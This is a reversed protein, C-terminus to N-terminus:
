EKKKEIITTIFFVIVYSIISVGIAVILNGVLFRRSYFLIQNLMSLQFEVVPLSGFILNGIKFSLLYIPILTLPNWIVMAGFLALKSIREFILVIILGIIINFGPTPIISIFTGIAFGLAIEKPTTKISLVNHFHDKVKNILKRATKRM